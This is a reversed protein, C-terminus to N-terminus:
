ARAIPSSRALRGRGSSATGPSTARSCTTSSGPGRTETLFETRFRDSRPGTGPARHPDMRHRPQGHEGDPGQPARAAAHGRRPVGRAISPSASWRSACKGGIERTVVKPKGVTLEFGERRMVEVLVALQLEGRGQVEWARAIADLVRISVNGVVEQDLRAKVPARDAEERGQGRAAVHQHRDDDLALARRRPHGAAAPDDPDALTEGITIENIGAVAVIEGPGASGGRRTSRRPSTSSPSRPPEITGDARCWAVEQGASRATRVRCLALRGVYPRLMSTPSSHRCSATGFTQAPIHKHLADVLYSTRPLRPRAPASARARQGCLHGPVGGTTRPASNSSCSCIKNLVALDPEPPDMKDIVLIVKLPSELAKKLVVRRPCRDKSADVLLLVGDVMTLECEVKRGFDRARAHRRHQDSSATVSPPKKALITIGKRELDTSDM